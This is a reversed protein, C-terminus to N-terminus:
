RELRYVVHEYGRWDARGEYAFGLAEMVSRSARNDPLTWSLALGEPEAELAAAAAERTYGRGRFDPLLGWLAEWAERPDLRSRRLGAYGVPTAGLRWVYPGVGDSAWNESLSEAMMRARAARAEADLPGGPTLWRAGVPDALIAEFLPWDAKTVPKGTLRASRLVPPSM